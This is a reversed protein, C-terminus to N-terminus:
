GRKLRYGVGRVTEIRSGWFGLKKRLNAIQVDIARDQAMLDDGRLELAIDGRSWVMGPRRLFLLLLEFESQTLSVNQGDLAVSRETRNLVLGDHKHEEDERPALLEESRRLQARVRAVLTQNNFPKVIYDVAGLELGVVIDSEEGRATLMIIPIGATEPRSKLRRCVELGDLDPLMLDLLILDPRQRVAEELGTEGRATTVVADFGRTQLIMALLERISPDDEIILIRGNATM